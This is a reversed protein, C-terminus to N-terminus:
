QPFRWLTVPSGGAQPVSVSREEPSNSGWPLGPQPILIQHNFGLLFIMPFMPFIMIAIKPCFIAYYQDFILKLMKISKEAGNQYLVIDIENHWGRNETLEQNESM